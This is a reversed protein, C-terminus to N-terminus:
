RALQAKAYKLEFAPESSKIKKMKTNNGKYPNPPAVFPYMPAM